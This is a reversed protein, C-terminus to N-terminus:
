GAFTVNNESGKEEGKRKRKMVVNHGRIISNIARSFASYDVSKVQAMVNLYPVLEQNILHLLELRLKTANPSDIQQQRLHHYEAHCQSFSLQSSKLKEFLHEAFPLTSLKSLFDEQEFESILAAVYSSCTLQQTCFLIKRYFSQLVHLLEQASPQFDMETMAAYSDILQHFRQFCSKMEVVGQLMQAKVPARKIAATLNLQMEEMRALLDILHDSADNGLADIKTLITQTLGAINGASTAYNICAIKTTM